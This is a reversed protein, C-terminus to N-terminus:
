APRRCPPKAEPPLARVIEDPMQYPEFGIGTRIGLKAAYAFRRACCRARASPPKGPTARWARPTRASSKATTSVGGRGHRVEVHAAAPLGLPASASNDLYAIHGVGAFELSLYSETWQSAGRTSTCASPTSACACCPRSTPASTRKTSSRSATSSTPGRCCAARPSARRPPGRSARPRCCSSARRTSRTARRRRHRLLRGAARPFRVRRLAAGARERGDARGQGARGRDLLGRHEQVAAPEIRLAIALDGAAPEGGARVEVAPQLRSLGRLLERAALTRRFSEDGAPQIVIRRPSEGRLGLAAVAGIGIFERRNM